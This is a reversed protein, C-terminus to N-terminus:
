GSFGLERNGKDRCEDCIGRGSVVSCWARNECNDCWSPELARTAAPILPLRHKKFAEAVM